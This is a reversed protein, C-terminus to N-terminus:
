NADNHKPQETNTAPGYTNKSRIHRENKVHKPWLKEASCNKDTRLREIATVVHSEPNRRNCPGKVSTKCTFNALRCFNPNSNWRLDDGDTCLSSSNILQMIVENSAVGYQRIGVLDFRTGVTAIRQVQDHRRGTLSEVYYWDQMM